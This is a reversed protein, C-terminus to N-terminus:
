ENLGAAKRARERVEPWMSTSMRGSDLAATRRAAEAILDTSPAPWEDPPVTDVLADVLRVRDSAPLIQAASLVDHFSQM